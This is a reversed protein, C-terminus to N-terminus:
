LGPGPLFRDRIGQDGRLHGSSQGGRGSSGLELHDPHHIRPRTRGHRPLVARTCHLVGWVNLDMEWKMNEIEAELFPAPGPTGGANNVLIDVPGLHSNTEKVLRTVAEPDTVDTPILVAEGREANAANVVDQGKGQDRTAVAVRCGERALRTVLGRGIGGSGGTVIAVKGELDLDM